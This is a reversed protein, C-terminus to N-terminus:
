FRQNVNSGATPLEAVYSLDNFQTQYLNWKLVLKLAFNVDEQFNVISILIFIVIIINCLNIMKLVIGGGWKGGQGPPPPIM